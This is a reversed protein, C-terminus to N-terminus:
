RSIVRERDTDMATQKRNTHMHTYVGSVDGACVPQELEEKFDTSVIVSTAHTFFFLLM